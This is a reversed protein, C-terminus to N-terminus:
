DTNFCVAKSWGSILQSSVRMAATKYTERERQNTEVELIYSETPGVYSDTINVLADGGQDTRVEVSCKTKDVSCKSVAM